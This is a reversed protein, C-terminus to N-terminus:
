MENQDGSKKPVERKGIIVRDPIRLDIVSIDQSFYGDKSALRQLIHMAREPNEEPLKILLGRSIQVDWRRNGLFTCFVIQQKISQFKELMDLFKPIAKPANEGVVIPLSPFSKVVNTPLVAGTNDVLYLQNKNQWYAIPTREKVSINYTSPWKRRVVASEIWSMAELNSRVNEPSIYFISKGYQLKSEKLLEKKSLNNMGLFNIHKIAFLDNQFQQVSKNRSLLVAAIVLTSLFCLYRFFRSFFIYKIFRLM